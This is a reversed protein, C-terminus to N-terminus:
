KYALYLAEIAPKLFEPDFKKGQDYELFKIAQKYMQKDGKQAHDSCINDFVNALAVIKSLEYIESGPKGHPYGKGNHQEHHEAIITTVQKPLGDIKSVQLAGKIPHDNIAKAYSTNNPDELIKSPIKAKGYDHFLAGMYVNELIYQHAHGLALALYVSINAVNVSHDAISKSKKTLKGIVATPIKGQSAKEVFSEAQQQLIAVNEKNLEDAAFTQFVQEVTEQREIAEQRHEEGVNEVVENIAKEKTLYTWENFTAEDESAIYITTVNKSLFLDYKQTSIFDEANKYKIYKNNILLYLDACLPEEPYIKSLPVPVFETNV